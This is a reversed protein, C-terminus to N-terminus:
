YRLVHTHTHTHTHTSPICPQDSQRDSAVLLSPPFSMFRLAFSPFSSCFTISPHILSAEMPYIDSLILANHCAFGGHSEERERESVSMCMCVFVCACVCVCKWLHYIAPSQQYLVDLGEPFGRADGRAVTVKQRRHAGGDSEGWDSGGEVRRGDM